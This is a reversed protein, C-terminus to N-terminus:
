SDKPAGHRHGIVVAVAYERTHSLSVALDALGIQRARALARGHLRLCPQGSDDSLVEIDRWPIDWIGRGLAKMAAEKAAFRAALSPFRGACAALEADTYVRKLFREGSRGCAEAIRSIEIIDTGLYYM